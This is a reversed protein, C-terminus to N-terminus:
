MGAAAAITIIAITIINILPIHVLVRRADSSQERRHMTSTM